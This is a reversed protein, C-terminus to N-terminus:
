RAIGGGLLPVPEEAGSTEARRRRSEGHQRRGAFLLVSGVVISAVVAIITALAALMPYTASNFMDLVVFGVVPNNTGALISSATVDGSVLVFLFAWGSAMGPLTLPLTVRFFTRRESAGSMLSAEGLDKGVQSLATTANVSAQPLYLVLYAIMLLTLTGNLRFPPGALAALMAVAIVMNSVAGPLKTAGDVSRGFVNNNQQVYVAVLLAILMGATAGFVGLTVSNQLAGAATETDLLRGYNDFGLASWRIDSSWFGQLSVLVLAGFPLVSTAAIFGLVFLRAPWKWIGLNVHNAGSAKGGITAHRGARAVRRQALWAAGVVLALVAGVALAEALRAPYTATLLRVIRVAVVEIRAQTGIITPVSFLALGYVLALLAGGAIAPAVTPLTVQRLTRWPPAGSMRAAEELAPDVNRLAASVVLYVQPVLYLTYVFILGYWSHIDIPGTEPAQIGVLGMFWRIGGNLYGASPAALFIWGVAGAIPPVLMPAIPLIRSAPGLSADTRENLWAFLCGFFLAFATASGVAIGTNRLVDAFGPAGLADRFPQLDLSGDPFFLKVASVTLPWLVLVAVALALVAIARSFGSRGFAHRWTSSTRIGTSLSSM